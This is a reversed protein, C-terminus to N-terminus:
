PTKPSTLPLAAVSTGLQRQMVSIEQQQSVIIEQAMRRLVPDKGYLLEVKAMDIAGQHHPIMESAFDHDPDGTRKASAMAHHMVEDVNEMLTSFSYANSVRLLSPTTSGVRMHHDQAITKDQGTVSAATTVLTAVAIGTLISPLHLSM